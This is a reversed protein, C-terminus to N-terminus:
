LELNKTIAFRTTTRCVCDGSEEGRMLALHSFHDVSEGGDPKGHQGNKVQCAPAPLGALAGAGGQGGM